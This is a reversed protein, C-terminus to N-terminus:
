FLNKSHLGKTDCCIYDMRNTNVLASYLEKIRSNTLIQEFSVQKTKTRSSPTYAMLFLKRM